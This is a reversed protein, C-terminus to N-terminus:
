RAYIRYRCLIEDNEELIIASRTFHTFLRIKEADSFENNWHGTVLGLESIRPISGSHQTFYGRLDEPTISLNMEVFSEIPTTSTSAFVTDDILQLDENKNTAWCHVIHPAPEDFAKCYYSTIEGTGPAEGFIKARGFYKQNIKSGDNSMRFPIAHFLTRRKYDPSIVSINDEATAGDGVMFGIIHNLAPINVGSILPSGTNGISAEANYHLSAYDGRNVGIKMQPAEDNLDGVRLTTESDLSINLLKSFIFQYGGIPIINKDRYLIKKFKTYYSPKGYPDKFEVLEKGTGFTVDGILGVDNLGLRDKILLIIM